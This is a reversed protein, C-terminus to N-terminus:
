SLPYIPPCQLTTKKKDLDSIPIISEAFELTTKFLKETVSPYYDVLDIQILNKHKKDPISKFWDIAANTNKLQNLKLKTKIQNNIKELIQKTIRGVNTKCPNILRCKINDPFNPKHDKLTIYAEKEPMIEIRDSIKLQETLHKAERNINNVTEPHTKKYSPNINNKLLTKYTTPDIEYINSTKDAFVFM